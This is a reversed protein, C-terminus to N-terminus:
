QINCVSVFPTIFVRTGWFFLVKANICYIMPYQALSFFRYGTSVPANCLGKIFLVFLLQHLLFQYISDGCGGRILLYHAKLYHIPAHLQHRSILINLNLDYIPFVSSKNFRLGPNATFLSNKGRHM